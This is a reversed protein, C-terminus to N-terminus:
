AQDIVGAGFFRSWQGELGVLLLASWVCAFAFLDTRAFPEKLIFTAVLLTVTPSCYQLFGLTTMRVRRAGAAFLVLPVATIPGGLVLLTDDIPHAASFAGSGTFAWFIVLVLTFPLLLTTEMTLGDFADVETLKRVFGYFGFSLALAPAAWPFAGLGFAKVGIAVTALALATLRVVSIKEGLALGLAISVLPTLYYGLSAEILRNTAICWIFVTWNVSILLSSLALAAFIQRHGLIALLHLIRRRLVTVGVSFLACWLVRHVTIEFPSVGALLRWYLPVFGWIGYAALAYLIGTGEHPHDKRRPDAM